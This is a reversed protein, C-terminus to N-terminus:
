KPFGGVPSTTAPVNIRPKGAKNIAAIDQPTLVVLGFDSPLYGLLALRHATTRSIKGNLYIQDLAVTLMIGRQAPIGPHRIPPHAADNPGTADPNPTTYAGQGAILFAGLKQRRKQREAESMNPAPALEPHAKLLGKITSQGTQLAAGSTQIRGQAARKVGPPLGATDTGGGGGHTLQNYARVKADRWSQPKGAVFDHSYGNFAGSTYYDGSTDKSTSTKPPHVLANYADVADQRQKPTMARVQAHTLGNFAGPGYMTQDDKSAAAAEKLGAATLATVNKTEDARAQQKFAAIDAARKERTTKLGQRAATINAQGQAAGQLKQGPGVVNVLTDAYDQAAKNVAAQQAGFSGALTQRVATAASAEPGQDRASTVGLANAGANAAGQASAADQRDLGTVAGTLAQAAANAQTATASIHDQHAKLSALYQDYFGGPGTFDRQANKAQAISQKGQRILPVYPPNVSARAQGQLQGETINSGAVIPRNKIKNKTKTAM